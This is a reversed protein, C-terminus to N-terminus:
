KTINTYSTKIQQINGNMDYKDDNQYKKQESM